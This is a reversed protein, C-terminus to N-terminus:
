FRFQMKALIAFPLADPNDLYSLRWVADIRFFKFVNEVGVGAEVYPKKQLTNLTTPFFIDDGTRQTFDGVLVKATMLERWKLKRLLPIRNLFFGNFHHEMMVTAYENSVFEYYNMLNFAYDDYAYTQNGEHLQQFPYPAKGFVKGGDLIYRLSGFPSLQVTHEMSMHFKYYEFESGMIDPVGITVGLTFIPYHTGLSIREFKGMVFKENYAFRTNLSIETTTLRKVNITDYGDWKEFTVRDSAFLQKNRLTLKNSFGLFWEHEYYGGLENVTILKDNKKRAFLSSLINDKLFAYETIGLQETDHFYYVNACRRPSTNFMYMAGLGYKFKQDSTGYALHGYPMFTTSFANSSRASFKFRHGEVPNFSYLTYYPGIEIPDKVWYGTVLTNIFKIINNYLPVEKISDVMQYIDNERKTLEEHRMKQWEDATKKMASDETIYEEYMTPSFFNDPLKPNIVINKFSTTKRGFFGYEKNTVAFDIFLEQKQPFWISDEVLTYTQEAVFDEVFNINVDDAM